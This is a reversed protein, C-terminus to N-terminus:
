RLTTVRPLHRGALRLNALVVEPPLGSLMYIQHSM